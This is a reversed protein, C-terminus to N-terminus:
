TAWVRYSRLPGPFQRKLMAGQRTAEAQSSFKMPRGSRAFKIGGVYKLVPDKNRQAFLVHQPAIPNRRRKKRDRKKPVKRVGM